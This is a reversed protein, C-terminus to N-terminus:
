TSYEEPKVFKVGRVNVKELKKVLADSAVIVTASEALRFLHRSGPIKTKDLVLKHIRRIDNEDEENVEYESAKKDMCSINSLLHIIRTSEEDRKKSKTILTVPYEEYSTEGVSRVAALAKQSILFYAGLWWFDLVGKLKSLTVVVGSLPFILKEGRWMGSPPAPDLDLDDPADEPTSRDLVFYDM